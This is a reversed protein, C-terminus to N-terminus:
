NVHNKRTIVVQSHPIVCDIMNYKYMHFTVSIFVCDRSLEIFFVHNM